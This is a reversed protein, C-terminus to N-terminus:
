MVDNVKKLFTIKNKKGKTKPTIKDQSDYLLFQRIYFRKIKVSITHLFVAQGQIM